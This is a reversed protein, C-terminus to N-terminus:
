DGEIVHIKAAAWRYVEEPQSRYIPKIMAKVVAVVGPNDFKVEIDGPSEFDTINNNSIFFSKEEDPIILEADSYTGDFKYVWGSPNYSNPGNFVVVIYEVQGIVKSIEKANFNEDLGLNDRLIMQFNEHAKGPVICPDGESQSVKDVAMTAARVAKIVAEKTDVTGEHYRSLEPLVILFLLFLPLTALLFATVVGGSKNNWFNNLSNM